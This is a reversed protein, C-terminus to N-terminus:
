KLIDYILKIKNIPVESLEIAQLVETLANGSSEIDKGHIYGIIQNKELKDGIKKNLIIGVTKDIISNKNERGAGLKMAINGIYETNIKKIYGERDAIIPIICRAAEFKDNDDIFTEDGYQLKVLEKFKELAKNDKIVARLMNEADALDNTVKGLLLMYSGLTIVLEILDEPGNGKLTEIAEKVELTNGIAYGLPEEMSSIIVVTEKGVGRGIKQMKLGLERAEEATKMFAGDGYKVDLVIADAGAAIKKSMISAAILSSNEVTGTVDRLAYMKKDAPTMNGSQSILALKMTNVNRIMAERPLEVKFGPISELKDITGGTFGLGRGSMKIIPVGLAAVMPALVLTTKDGVGGTSHKDVKIGNIAKLDLIEGSYAMAMTLAITEAENLGMFYIAMLLASAQYDPIEGETYGKIFYNIENETLEFGERKKIIIDKINM